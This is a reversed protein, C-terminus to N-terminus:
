AEKRAANQKVLLRHEKQVKEIVPMLLNSVSSLKAAFQKKQFSDGHWEASEPRIQQNENMQQM